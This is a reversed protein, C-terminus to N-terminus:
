QGARAADGGATAFNEAAPCGARLWEDILSERWRVSRGLRIPAPLRGASLLKFVQRTSIGLRGALDAVRIMRENAATESTATTTM